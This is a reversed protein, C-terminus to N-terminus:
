KIKVRAGTIDYTSANTSTLKTDCGFSGKTSSGTSVILKYSVSSGPSLNPTTKVGAVVKKTVDSGGTTYRVKYGNRSPCGSVVYSDSKTGDNQFKLTFTAKGGARTKVQAIQGTADHFVEDAYLDVGATDIM